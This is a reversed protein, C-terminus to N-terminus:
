IADIKRSCPIREVLTKQMEVWREGQVPFFTHITHFTHWFPRGLTTGISEESVSSCLISEQGAM